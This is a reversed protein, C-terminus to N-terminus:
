PQIGWRTLLDAHLQQNIELAVLSVLLLAVAWRRRVGVVTVWRGTVWGAAARAAAGVMAFALVPVGPNYRWATALDGHALAYTARTGGCAPDMIGVYHLPSHWDIPPLGVIALVIAGTAYLGAAITWARHRDTSELTLRPPGTM